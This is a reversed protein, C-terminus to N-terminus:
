LYFNYIDAVIKRFGSFGIFIILDPLLVQYISKIQSTPWLLILYHTDGVSFYFDM